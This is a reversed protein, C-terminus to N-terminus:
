VSFGRAAQQRRGARDKAEGGLEQGTAGLLDEGLWAKSVAEGPGVRNQAESSERARLQQCLPRSLDGDGGRGGVRGKGKHYFHERQEMVETYEEASVRRRSALRAPLDSLSSVLKDLPSGPLFVLDIGQKDNDCSGAAWGASLWAKHSSPSPPARLTAWLAPVHALDAFAVGCVCPLCM